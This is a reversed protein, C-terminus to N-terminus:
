KAPTIAEKPAKSKTVTFATKFAEGSAWLAATVLGNEFFRELVQGLKAPWSAQASYIRQIDIATAVAFLAGLSLAHLDFFDKPKKPGEYQEDIEIKPHRHTLYHASADLVFLPLFYPRLISM